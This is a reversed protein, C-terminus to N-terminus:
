APVTCVYQTSIATGRIHFIAASTSRFKRHRFTIATSSFLFSAITSDLRLRTRPEFPNLRLSRATSPRLSAPVSPITLLTSRLAPAVTTDLTRTKTEAFGDCLHGSSRSPTSQLKPTPSRVRLFLCSFVCFNLTYKLQTPDTAHHIHTHTHFSLFLLPLVTLLLLLLIRQKLSEPLLSATAHRQVPYSILLRPLLAQIYLHYRSYIVTSLSPVPPLSCCLCLCATRPDDSNIRTHRRVYYLVAADSVVVQKKPSSPRITHPSHVGSLHVQPPAFPQIGYPAPPVVAM